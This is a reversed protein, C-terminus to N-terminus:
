NGCDANLKIGGFGGYVIFPFTPGRIV